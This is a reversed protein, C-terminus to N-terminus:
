ALSRLYAGLYTKFTELSPSEVVRRPLRNWLEMVRVMFFNKHVNTRFKRHKLKHGNGRKRNGCQQFSDARMGKGGVGKINISM